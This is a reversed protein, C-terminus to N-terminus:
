MPLLVQGETRTINQIEAEVAFCVQGLEIHDDAHVAADTIQLGLTNFRVSQGDILQALRQVLLKFINECM